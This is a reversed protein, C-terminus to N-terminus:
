WDTDGIDRVSEIVDDRNQQKAEAESVRTILPYIEEPKILSDDDNLFTKAQKVYETHVKKHLINFRCYIEAARILADPTFGEKIRKQWIGWAPKKPNGGARKPYTNWFREFAESFDYRNKQHNKSPEIVTRPSVTDPTHHCQSPPTTVSQRPDPSVTVPTVSHRPHSETVPQTNEIPSQQARKEFFTQVTITYYNSRGNRSKAVLIQVEQLHQIARQVSRESLCTREAIKPVSPWCVGEDNANDALSILVAKQAANFGQIPWCDSMIRTSM